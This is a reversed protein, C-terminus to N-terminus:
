RRRWRMWKRRRSWWRRCRRRRKTQRRRTRRRSSRRRGRRRRWQAKVAELSGAPAVSHFLCTCACTRGPSPESNGWHFSDELVGTVPEPLQRTLLTTFSEQPDFSLLVDKLGKWLRFHSSFLRLCCSYRRVKQQRSWTITNMLTERQPNSSVSATCLIFNQHSHLMAPRYLWLFCRNPRGSQMRSGRLRRATHNYTSGASMGGTHHHPPHTNREELCFLAGSEILPM